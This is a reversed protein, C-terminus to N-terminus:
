KKRCVAVFVRPEFFAPDFPLIEPGNALDYLHFNLIPVRQIVNMSKRVLFGTLSKKILRQGYLEEISFYPKLENLLQARTYELVHFRNLPKDNFPSTIIKNPTSLLLLGDPKLWRRLNSLYAQRPEKELHEITEFSCIVDFSGEPFLDDTASARIFQLNDRQYNAQAYAISEESIDVGTVRSATKSLEFSGYGTGCAIDLVKKEATSKLAFAYRAEHEDVLRKKTVGPVYQEGSFQM